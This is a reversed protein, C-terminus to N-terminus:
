INQSVFFASSICDYYDSPCLCSGVSFLNGRFKTTVLEIYLKNNPRTDPEYIFIDHDICKARELSRVKKGSKLNLITAPFNEMDLKSNIYVEVFDSEIKNITPNIIVNAGLRGLSFLFYTLKANEMKFLFDLEPLLITVKKGMLLLYQALGLSLDSKAEILIKNKDTFIEKSDLVEYINKVNSLVAGPITSFKPFFGTAVIISSYKEYYEPLAKFETQLFINLRGSKSFSELTKELYDNYSRAAHNYGYIEYLRGNKNLTDRSDYLDVFFGRKLLFIAANEGAIGSGVVAVRKKMDTLTKGDIMRIKEKLVSFDYELKPYRVEKKMDNQPCLVCSSLFKKKSDCLGCKICSLFNEGCLIKSIINKDALIQRTFDFLFNDCLSVSSPIDYLFDHYIFFVDNGFKNKIGHEKFYSNILTYARLLINDKQFKTSVNLFETEFTGLKLIFGDVGLRVLKELFECTKNLDFSKKFGHSSQIKGSSAGYAETIFSSLSFSYFIKAIKNKNLIKGILNKAFDEYEIFYGLKRKNIEFSSFEGILGELDGEILIGDFGDDLAFKAQEVLLDILKQTMRDSIKKCPLRLNNFCRYYNTSYNFLRCSANKSDARGYALKLTYFFKSGFLHIGSLLNKIKDSSELIKAFDCEPLNKTSFGGSFICGAGAKAISLYYNIFEDSLSFDDNLFIDDSKGIFCVRNKLVSSNFNVTSFVQAPINVEVGEKDPTEIIDTEFDIVSRADTQPQM